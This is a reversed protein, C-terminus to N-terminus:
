DEEERCAPMLPDLDGNPDDVIPKRDKLRASLKKRNEDDVLAQHILYETLPPYKKTGM